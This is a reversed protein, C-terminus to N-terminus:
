AAAAQMLTRIRVLNFAAAAILWVAALLTWGLPGRLTILEVPTYTGAILFYIAIGTAIGM